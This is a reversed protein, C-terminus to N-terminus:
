ARVALCARRREIKEGNVREHRVREFKRTLVWPQKLFKGLLRHIPYSSM